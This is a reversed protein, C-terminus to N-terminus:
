KTGHPRHAPGVMPGHGQTGFNFHVGLFHQELDSPDASTDPSERAFREIARREREEIARRKMAQAKLYAQHKESKLYAEHKEKAELMKQKAGSHPRVPASPGLPQKTCPALGNATIEDADPNYDHSTYEEEADSNYDPVTYEEEENTEDIEIDAPAPGLGHTEDIELAPGVEQDPEWDLPAM